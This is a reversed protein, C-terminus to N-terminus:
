GHCMCLNIHIKRVVYIINCHIHIYQIYRAHIDQRASKASFFYMCMHVIHVSMCLINELYMKSAHMQM